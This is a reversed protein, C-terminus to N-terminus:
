RCEKGIQVRSKRANSTDDVGTKPVNVSHLYIEGEALRTEGQAEGRTKVIPQEFGAGGGRKGIPFRGKLVREILGDGTRGEGFEGGSFTGGGNTDAVNCTGRRVAQNKRGDERAELWYWRSM